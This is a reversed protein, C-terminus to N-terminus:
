VDFAGLRDVAIYHDGGPCTVFDLDARLIKAAEYPVEAGCMSCKDPRRYPGRMWAPLESAPMLPVGQDAYVKDQEALLDPGTGRSRWNWVALEDIGAYLEAKTDFEEMQLDGESYTLYVWKEGEKGAVLCYYPWELLDWGDQGWGAIPKFGAEEAVGIFAYGDDLYRGNLVRTGYEIM